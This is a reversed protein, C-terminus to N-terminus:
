SYGLPLCQGQCIDFWWRCPWAVLVIVVSETSDLYEKKTHKSEESGFWIRPSKLVYIWWVTNSDKVRVWSLLSLSSKRGGSTNLCNPTRKLWFVLPEILGQVDPFRESRHSHLLRLRNNNYVNAALITNSVFAWKIDLCIYCETM